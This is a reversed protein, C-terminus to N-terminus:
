RRRGAARCWRRLDEDRRVARRAGIRCRERAARESAPHGRRRGVRRDRVRLHARVAARCRERAFPERTRETRRAILRTRERDLLQKGARVRDRRHRRRVQGSTMMRTSIPACLVHSEREALLLRGDIDREIWAADLDRAGDLIEGTSRDRVRAHPRLQLVVWSRGFGVVLPRERQPERGPARIEDRGGVPVRTAVRARVCWADDLDEERRLGRDCAGHDVARAALGDFARAHLWFPALRRGDVGVSPTRKADRVESRSPPADDGRGLVAGAGALPRDARRKTFSSFADDHLQVRSNAHRATHKDAAGLLGARGRM